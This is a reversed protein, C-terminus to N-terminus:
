EDSTTQEPQQQFALIEKYLHDVTEEAFQQDRWDLYDGQGAHWSAWFRAVKTPNLHQLLIQAVEQMVEAETIVQVTM